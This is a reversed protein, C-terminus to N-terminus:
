SVSIEALGAGKNFYPAQDFITYIKDIHSGPKDFLYRSYELKAAHLPLV